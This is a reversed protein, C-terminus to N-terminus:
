IVILAFFVLWVATMLHWYIAFLELAMHRKATLQQHKALYFVYILWGIGILMHFAHVTTLIYFLGSIPNSTAYFGAHRLLLWAVLQSLFFVWGLALTLGLFLRCREMLGRKASRQSAWLTLTSIVIAVTSVWLSPPWPFYYNPKDALRYGYMSALGAFLMALSAAFLWMGIKATPVEPRPRGHGNAGNGGGDYGDSGGAIGSSSAKTTPM